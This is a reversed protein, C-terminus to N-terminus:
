KWVSRLEALSKHCFDEHQWNAVSNEGANQKTSDFKTGPLRFKDHIRHQFLTEGENDLQLIGPKVFNSVQWMRAYKTGLRHWATPFTDKDGYVIHYTYNAQQNYHKAMHCERWCRVKDVVLQGSETPIETFSPVGLSKAAGHPFMRRSQGVDPWFIAGHECYGSWDFLFSPDRVPYSDSDLMLVEAFSSHLLAYAKLQWGKWWNDLFYDSGKAHESANHCTVGLPSVIDIMQQDMEGDLYWLEIPLTCGVMRIVRITIYASVFYKGGGTIVIGCRKLSGSIYNPITEIFETALQRQSEQLEHSNWWEVSNNDQVRRHQPSRRDLNKQPQPQPNNLSELYRLVLASPEKRKAM